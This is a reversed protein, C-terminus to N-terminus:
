SVTNYYSGNEIKGKSKLLLQKMTDGQAMLSPIDTKYATPTTMQTVPLPLLLKLVVALVAILFLCINMKKM